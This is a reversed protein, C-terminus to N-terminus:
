HGFHGAPLAKEEGPSFSGVRRSAPAQRESGGIGSGEKWNATCKRHLGGDRNGGSEPWPQRCFREEARLRVACSPGRILADAAWTCSCFARGSRGKFGDSGLAAAPSPCSGGRFSVQRFM